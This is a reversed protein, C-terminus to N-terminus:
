LPVGEAEINKLLGEKQCLIEQESKILLSVFVETELLFESILPLVKLYDDKESDHNKLVLLLDVDSDPRAQNKAYSGFLILRSFRNGFENKLCSKFDDLFHIVSKQQVIM